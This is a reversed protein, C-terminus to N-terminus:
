RQLDAAQEQRDAPQRGQRGGGPDEDDGQAQGEEGDQLRHDARRAGCRGDRRGAEDDQGRCAQGEDEERRAPGTPDGGGGTGM